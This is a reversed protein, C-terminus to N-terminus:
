TSKSHTLEYIHIKGNNLEPLFYFIIKNNKFEAWFANRAMPIYPKLWLRVPLSCILQNKEMDILDIGGISVRETNGIFYDGRGLCLAFNGSLSHCDQYSVYNNPTYSKNTYKQEKLEKSSIQYLYKSAWNFGYLTNKDKNYLVAGIHDPFKSVRQAHLTHIDLKYFSTSSNPRYEALPIWIFKGDYDIGGPHYMDGDALRVSNLLKGASNVVNLYGIGEGVDDHNKPRKIVKVTTIYFKDKIKILGQPNYNDFQLQITKLFNWQHKGTCYNQFTELDVQSGYSYHSVFFLYVILLVRYIKIYIM